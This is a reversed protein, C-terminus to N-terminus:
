PQAGQAADAAFLEESPPQPREENNRVRYPATATAIGTLGRLSLDIVFRRDDMLRIEANESRGNAQFVVPAAWHPELTQEAPQELARVDDSTVDAEYLATDGIPAFRVGVPLERIEPTIVPPLQPMLQEASEAGESLPSVGSANTGSTDASMADLAGGRAVADWPAVRYRRGGPEYQLVMVTGSRVAEIRAKRLTTQVDDAGQQLRGKSLMSRMAPWSMGALAALVACVILMEILTYGARRRLM